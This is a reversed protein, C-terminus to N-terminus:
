SAFNADLTVGATGATGKLTFALHVNTGALLVDGTHVSLGYACNAPKMPNDSRDAMRILALNQQVIRVLDEVEDIILADVGIQIYERILEEDNITWAFIFRVQNTFARFACVQEIASPM